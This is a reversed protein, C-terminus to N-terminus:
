SASTPTTGRRVGLLSVETNSAVLAQSNEQYLPLVDSCWQPKILLMIRTHTHRNVLRPRLLILAETIVAEAQVCGRVPNWQSPGSSTLDQSNVCYGGLWASPLVSPSYELGCLRVSLGSLSNPGGPCRIGVWLTETVPAM